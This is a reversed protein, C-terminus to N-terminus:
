NIKEKIAAKGPIKTLVNDILGGDVIIDQATIYNSEDSCLFLATNAIDEPTGIRKMPVIEIREKLIDEDRYVNENMPTRIMGPSISNARINYEAWEIACTKTFNIVASKIPGYIGLGPFGYHASISGINVIAGSLQKIMEGGIIQSCYVVGKLNIDLIRDIAAEALNEVPSSMIVGANNILIDIRKFAALTKDMLHLVDERKSVDARVFICRDGAGSFEAPTERNVLEDILAIGKPEDRGTVVVKAGQRYFLRACGEGIGRTSGTIVAVKDKLRM